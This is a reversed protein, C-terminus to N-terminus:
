SSSEKRLLERLTKLGRFLHSKVTGLPHGTAEAIEELELEEAFRLVLVRRHHDPVQSLLARVERARERELLAEVPLEEADREESERLARKDHNKRGRTVMHCRHFTMSALYSRFRGGAKYRERERWLALFVDQMVDRGLARDGLYRTAIGFVLAQHRRMLMEFADQRGSRVLLMLEDDELDALQRTERAEVLHIPQRDAL